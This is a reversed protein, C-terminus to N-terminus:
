MKMQRWHESNATRCPECAPLSWEGKQSTYHKNYGSRTGHEPILRRLVPKGRKGSLERRYENKAERCDVCPRENNREHRKHGGTTGCVAQRMPKMGRARRYDTQAQQCLDCLPEHNRYHRNAASRTGHQAPQWPKVGKERARRSQALREAEACEPCLEEDAKRHKSSGSETGHLAIKNSIYRADVSRYYANLIEQYPICLIASLKDLSCEKPHNVDREWYGVTSSHSIGVAVAVANFTLGLERRRRRLLPGLREGELAM